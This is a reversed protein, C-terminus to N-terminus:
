VQYYVTEKTKEKLKINKSSNRIECHKCFYTAFSINNYILTIFGHTGNFIKYSSLLFLLLYFENSQFAVTQGAVQGHQRSALDLDQYRRQPGGVLDRHLEVASGSELKEKLLNITSIIKSQM